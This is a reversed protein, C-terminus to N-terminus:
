RFKNYRKLSTTFTKHATYYGYEDECDRLASACGFCPEDVFHM